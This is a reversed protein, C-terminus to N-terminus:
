GRENGGPGGNGGPGNAAQESAMALEEEYVPNQSGPLYGYGYAGEVYPLGEPIPSLTTWGSQYRMTWAWKSVGTGKLNYGDALTAGGEVIQSISTKIVNVNETLLLTEGDVEREQETDMRTEYFMVNNTVAIKYKETADGVWADDPAIIQARGWDNITEEGKSLYGKGDADEAYFWTGDDKQVSLTYGTNAANSLNLGELGYYNFCTVTGDLTVGGGGTQVVYAEVSCIDYEQSASLEKGEVRVEMTTYVPVFAWQQYTVAIVTEQERALVEYEHEGYPTEQSLTYTDGFKSRLTVTVDQATLDSADTGQPWVVCFYDTYLDNLYPKGDSIADENGTAWTWQIEDSPKRGSTYNEDVTNEVFETSLALDTCTRGYIYVAVPFIAPEVEQGDYTIGSVEFRFNYVGAGDGGMISWERDSNYDVTTDYGWTNFLLDGEKLTYTYKGEKWTGDLKDALLVYEDAYYGNGDLLRVIAHSSDILTDDVDSGLDFVASGTYTVPSLPIVQDKENEYIVRKGEENYHYLHIDGPGHTYILDVKLTTKNGTDAMGLIDSKVQLAPAQAAAVPVAMTMMIGLLLYIIGSEKKM